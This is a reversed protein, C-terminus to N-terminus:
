TGRMQWNGKVRQGVTFTGTDDRRVARVASAPLTEFTGDDDYQITIDNGSIATIVGRYYKGRLQWNGWAKQGVTFTHTTESETVEDADCTNAGCGDMGCKAACYGMGGDYWQCTSTGDSLTTSTCSACNPRSGCLEADAGDTDAQQCISEPGGTLSEQSDATKFSHCYLPYTLSTYSIFINRRDM